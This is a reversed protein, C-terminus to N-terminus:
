AAGADAAGSDTNAPGDPTGEASEPGGCCIGGQAGFFPEHFEGLFGLGEPCSTEIPREDDPDFLPFGGLAQCDAISLPPSSSPSAGCAVVFAGLPIALCLWAMGDLFMVSRSRRKRPSARPPLQTMGYDEALGTGRLFSATKRAWAAHRALNDFDVGVNAL